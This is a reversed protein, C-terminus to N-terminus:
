PYQGLVNDLGAKDLGAVFTAIDRRQSSAPWVAWTRRILPNGVLPAWTVSDPIPQAWNAPALAFAGGNAVGALKVEAILAQGEPAEAGLELGHSRLIAVVEDYWAPSGSRPFGVWDLGALANLRVGDPGAVREAVGGALLVGLRETLVLAADLDAGSPHERVLGVDLEGLALAAFQAATALHRAQVRVNPHAAALDALPKTLVDAPLELPIGVRLAGGGAEAHRAVAALAKDHRALVARAEALLTL